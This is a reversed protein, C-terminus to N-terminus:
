DRRFERLLEDGSIFDGRDTEEIAELLAAEAEPGLTFGERNEPTLM